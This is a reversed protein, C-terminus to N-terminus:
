KTIIFTHNTKKLTLGNALVIADLIQELPDDKTYTGYFSMARVEKPQFDIRVHYHVELQRFVQALPANEFILPADPKVVMRPEPREQRRQTSVVLEGTKTKYNLTQGPILYALLKGVGEKERKIVVKGTILRITIQRSNNNGEVWFSTGLATTSIDGSLVIFPKKRDKAVEFFAKGSLVVRRRGAEFPAPWMLSSGSELKVVSGDELVTTHVDATNNLLRKFIQQPKGVLVSSRRFLQAEQHHVSFFQVAAFGVILAFCAAVAYLIRPLRSVRVAGAQQQNVEDIKQKMLWGNREDLLQGDAFDLQDMWKKLLMSEEPSAQGDLFKQLLIQLAIKDAQM